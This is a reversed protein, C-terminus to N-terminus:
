QCMGVVLLPDWEEIFLYLSVSFDEKRKSIEHQVKMSLKEDAAFCPWGNVYKKWRSLETLTTWQSSNRHTGYGMWISINMRPKWKQGRGYRSLSGWPQRNKLITHFPPIRGMSHYIRKRFALFHVSIRKLPCCSDSVLVRLSESYHKVESFLDKQGVFSKLASPRSELINRYKTTYWGIEWSTTLFNISNNLDEVIVHSPGRRTKEIFDNNFPWKCATTEFIKAFLAVWGLRGAFNLQGTPSDTVTLFRNWHTKKGTSLKHIYM